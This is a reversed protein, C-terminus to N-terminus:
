TPPAKSADAPCPSPAAPATPGQATTTTAAASADAPACGQQEDVQTVGPKDESTGTSSAAQETSQKPEIALVNGASLVAAFLAVTSAALIQPRTTM